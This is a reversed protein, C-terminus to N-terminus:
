QQIRYQKISDASVQENLMKFHASQEWKIWEDVQHESGMNFTVSCHACIVNTNLEAGDSIQHKTAPEGVLHQTSCITHHCRGAM